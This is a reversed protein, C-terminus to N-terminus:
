LPFKEYMAYSLHAKKISFRLADPEYSPSDSSRRDVFFLIKVYPVYFNRVFSCRPGGQLTVNEQDLVIIKCGKNAL